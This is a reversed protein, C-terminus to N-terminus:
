SARHERDYEDFVERVVARIATTLDNRLGDLEGEPGNLSHKLDDFGRELDDFRRDHRGLCSKIAALLEGNRRTQELIQRLLVKKSEMRREFPTLAPKPM